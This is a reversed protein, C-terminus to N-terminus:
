LLRKTMHRINTPPPLSEVAMIVAGFLLLRLGTDESHGDNDHRKAAQRVERKGLRSVNLAANVHNTRILLAITLQM